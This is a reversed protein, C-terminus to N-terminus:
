LVGVAKRALRRVRVAASAVYHLSANLATTRMRALGQQPQYLYREGAIRNRQLPNGAHMKGKFGSTPVQLENAVSQAQSAYKGGTASFCSQLEVRSIQPSTGAANRIQRGLGRGDVIGDAATAFPAGHGQFVHVFDDVDLRSSGIAVSDGVELTRAAPAAAIKKSASIAGRGSLGQSRITAIRKTFRSFKAVGKTAAKAIAPGAAVIGLALGVFGLIKATKTDGSVEAAIAGVEAGVAVVGLTTSAIAGATSKTLASFGVTAVAAVAKSAAGFTVAVAAVGLAIGVAAVIWKWFHGTPDNRNVPDGACYAYPNLGGEGFPSLGDAALFIGLRPCYPRHHGAGLLYCGSAADLLEGNFAPEAADSEARSGHPAYAVQRVATDAELLVSGSMATALLTMRAVAGRIQEVIPQGMARLWTLQASGSTPSCLENAVEDGRWFRDILRGATGHRTLLGEADYHYSCRHSAPTAKLHSQAVMPMNRDSRNIAPVRMARTMPSMVGTICDRRIWVWIWIWIAAQRLRM